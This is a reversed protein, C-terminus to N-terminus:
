PRCAAAGAWPAQRQRYASRAPRHRALRPRARLWSSWRLPTRRQPPNRRGSSRGSSIPTTFTVGSEKESPPCNRSGRAAIVCARCSRSSPASIRSIPPSDERGPARATASPSSSRRTRGTSFARFSTGTDTSVRRGDTIRATSASPADMILSMSASSAGPARSATASVSQATHRMCLCPVGASM